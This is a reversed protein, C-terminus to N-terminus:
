LHIFSATAATASLIVAIASLILTSILLSLSFVLTLFIFLAHSSISSHVKLIGLITITDGHVQTSLLLSGIKPPGNKGIVLGGFGQYFIVLGTCIAKIM